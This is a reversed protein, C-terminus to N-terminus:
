KFCIAACILFIGACKHLDRMVETKIKTCSLISFVEILGASILTFWGIVQIIM